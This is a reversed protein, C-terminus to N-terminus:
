TRVTVTDNNRLKSTGREMMKWTRCKEARRNPGDNELGAKETKTRKQDAMKLDQLNLSGACHSCNGIDSPIYQKVALRTYVFSVFTTASPVFSSSM